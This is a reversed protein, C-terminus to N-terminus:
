EYTSSCRPYIRTRNIPLSLRCDLHLWFEASGILWVRWRTRTKGKVEFNMLGERLSMNVAEGDEPDLAIPNSQYEYNLEVSSNTDMGFPQAVLDALRHGRFGLGFSTKHFSARAKENDNEAQIVVTIQVQLLSAQDFYITDLQASAASIQPVKPKIILYGIFVVMGAIIVMVTIIACIVATCWILPNTHHRSGFVPKPEPM